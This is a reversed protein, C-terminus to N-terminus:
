FNIKLNKLILIKSEQLCKASAPYLFSNICPAEAFLDGENFIGLVTEDGSDKVKYVAVKGSLVILLNKAEEGEFFLIQEKKYHQIKSISKLTKLEEDDLLSFLGINKLEDM